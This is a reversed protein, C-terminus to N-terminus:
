LTKDILLTLQAKSVAGIQTAQVKGDKFIMLTPIGRVGYSRPTKQNHDINVKAIKLRGEYSSAIEDLLPAIMKCPACWEAWFDVLVPASSAGITEYFTSSTLTTIAHAM